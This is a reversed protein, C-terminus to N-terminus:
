LKTYGGVEGTPPYQALLVPIFGLLGIAILGAGAWEYPTNMVDTSWIVACVAGAVAPVPLLAILGRSPRESAPMFCTQIAHLVQFLALCGMGIFAFTFHWELEEDSGHGDDTVAMAVLAVGGAVAVLVSLVSAIRQRDGLSPSRYRVFLLAKIFVLLGAFGLVFVNHSPSVSGFCSIPPLTAGGCETDEPLLVICVLIFSILWFIALPPLSLVLWRPLM